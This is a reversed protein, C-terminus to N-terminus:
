DGAVAEPHDRLDVRAHAIRAVQAHVLGVAALGEVIGHAERAGVAELLVALRDADAGKVAGLAAQAVADERGSLAELLALATVQCAARQARRRELASVPRRAEAVVALPGTTRM